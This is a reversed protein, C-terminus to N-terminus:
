TSWAGQCCPTRHIQTWTSVVMQFSMEDVLSSKLVQQCWKFAFRAVIIDIEPGCSGLIRRAEEMTIGRLSLSIIIMIITTITIKITMIITTITTKIIMIITTKITMIIDIRHFLLVHSFSQSNHKQILSAWLFYKVKSWECKNDRRWDPISWGQLFM